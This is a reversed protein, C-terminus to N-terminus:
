NIVFLFYFYFISFNPTVSSILCTSVSSFFLVILSLFHRFSIWPKFLTGHFLRVPKKILFIYFASHSLNRKLTSYGSSSSPLRLYQYVFWKSLLPIHRSPLGCMQKLSLALRERLGQNRSFLLQEHTSAVQTLAFVMFTIERTVIICFLQKDETIM